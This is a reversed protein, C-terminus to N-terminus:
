DVSRPAALDPEVWIVREKQTQKAGATGLDIRYAWAGNLKEAAVRGHHPRLADPGRTEFWVEEARLYHDASIVRMQLIGGGVQTLKSRSFGADQDLEGVGGTSGQATLRASLTDDIPIRGTITM